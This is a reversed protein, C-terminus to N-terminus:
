QTKERRGYIERAYERSRPQCAISGLLDGALGGMTDALHNIPQAVAFTTVYQCQEQTDKSLVYKPLLYKRDSLYSREFPRNCRAKLPVDVLDTSLAPRGLAVILAAMVNCHLLDLGIDNDYRM